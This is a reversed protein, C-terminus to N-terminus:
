CYFFYGRDSDDPLNLIFDKTFRNCDEEEKFNGIPLPQIMAWGYINNADHYIIYKHNETNGDYNDLYPNNASSYKNSIMSIGGRINNEVKLYMDSQKDNFLDLTVDGKKLCADWAM